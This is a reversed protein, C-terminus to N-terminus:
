SDKVKTVDNKLIKRKPPQQLHFQKRLKREPQENHTYLFAASKQTNVQYGAAKSFENIKKQGTHRYLKPNEVYLIMDDAFLPSPM